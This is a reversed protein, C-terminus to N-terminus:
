LCLLLCSSALSIAEERESELGALFSRGGRGWSRSPAEVMAETQMSCGQNGAEALVVEGEERLALSRFYKINLTEWLFQWGVPCERGIM